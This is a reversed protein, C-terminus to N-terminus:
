YDMLLEISTGLIFKPIPAYQRGYEMDLGVQWNAHPLVNSVTLGLSLEGEDVIYRHNWELGLKINKRPGMNSLGGLFATQYTHPYEGHPTYLHQFEINFGIKPIFGEWARYLGATSIISEYGNISQLERFNEIAVVTQIYTDFGLISRKLELGLVPPRYAGNASLESERSPNKRGFLNIATDWITMEISGVYTFDRFHPTATRGLPYLLVGTITGTWMPVQVHLSLMKGSDSMIDTPIYKHEEELERHFSFDFFSLDSLLQVYGWSTSKRGASIYVMDLLLYDFYLSEISLSFNPYQARITGHIALNKTARASLNLDNKFLLFGTAKKDGNVFEGAVGIEAEMHGSLTLPRFFINSAPEMNNSDASVSIPNAPEQNEVTIDEATEFLNAFADEEELDEYESNLDQTPETTDTESSIEQGLIAGCTCVCLFLLLLRKM